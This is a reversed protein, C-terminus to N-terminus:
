HRKLFNRVEDHDGLLHFYLMGDNLIEFVLRLKLGARGESFAGRLKRLGIGAHRHPRGMACSIETIAEGIVRREERSLDRLQALLDPDLEIRSSPNSTAPLAARSEPKATRKAKPM